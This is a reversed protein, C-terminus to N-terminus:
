KKLYKSYTTKMRKLAAEIYRTPCALNWREFGEGQKGFVYGEDFFLRAEQHNIRELEKYDIGLGNWDMWLLYTAELRFIKIQPFERAMFDTIVQRNTDIIKLAEALWQECNKYAAACACYGLINCKPNSNNMMLANFFSQRLKPNKIIINSTQLGAMNFTKSPATCVICNDAFSESLSAFPIHKYGPMVLDAHIEDSLVVVNYKLCIDGLRTLEERTWARGVPNGPSCLIFLKTNTDAAKKEFDVFNIEYRDGNIKLPCDVMIRNNVSIAHYMPYYVPTLLIVGEQEKTYTRVANHFADVIGPSPLIWEPQIIWEFRKKMWACVTNLYEKTPNAYGMISNDLEQKLAEVIEPATVFEMDAVSFPIIDEAPTVGNDALEDWKKSGTNFRQHVTDFDYQM